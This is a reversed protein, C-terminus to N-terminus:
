KERYDVAKQGNMVFTEINKESLKLEFKPRM